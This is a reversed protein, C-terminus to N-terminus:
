EEEKVIECVGANVLEEAREKTVKRILNKSKVSFVKKTYKDRYNKITKVLCENEQLKSM